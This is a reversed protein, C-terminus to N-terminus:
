EPKAAGCRFCAAKSRFVNSHCKPCNWDGERVEFNGKGGAGKGGKGGGGAASQPAFSVPEEGNLEPFRFPERPLAGKKDLLDKHEEIGILQVIAEITRGGTGLLNVEPKEIKEMLLRDLEARLTKVLVATQPRMEFGAWDDVVIQQKSHDVSIDGGFLLISHPSIMTCDRVYVKTTMVKEHFVLWQCEYM